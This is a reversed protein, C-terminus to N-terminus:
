GTQAARGSDSVGAVGGSSPIKLPKEAGRRHTKRYRLIFVM